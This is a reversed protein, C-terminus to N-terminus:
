NVVMENKKERYKVKSVDTPDFMITCDVIDGMKLSKATQKLVYIRGSYKNKNGNYKKKQSCNSM